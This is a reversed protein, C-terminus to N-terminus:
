TWQLSRRSLFNDGWSLKAFGGCGFPLLRGASTELRAFDRRFYLDLVAGAGINVSQTVTAFDHEQGRRLRSEGSYKVPQLRKKKKRRRRWIGFRALPRTAARSNPLKKETPSDGEFEGEEFGGVGVPGSMSGKRGRSAGSVLPLVRAISSAETRCTAVPM